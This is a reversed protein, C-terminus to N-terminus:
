TFSASHILSQVQERVGLFTLIEGCTPRKAPDSHLLSELLTHVAQSFHKGVRMLEVDEESLLNAVEVDLSVM